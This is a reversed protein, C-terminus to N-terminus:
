QQEGWPDKGACVAQWYEYDIDSQHDKPANRLADLTKEAFEPHVYNPHLCYWPYRSLLELAGQWGPVISSSHQLELDATDENYLANENVDRQFRWEGDSDKWGYLSIGGGEAGIEIIKVPHDSTGHLHNDDNVKGSEMRKPMALDDLVRKLAQQMRYSSMKNGCDPCFSLLDEGDIVFLEGDGRQDSWDMQGILKVLSVRARGIKLEKGCCDCNEPLNGSTQQAAEENSDHAPLELKEVMQKRLEKSYSIRNGCRACSSILPDADIVTVSQLGTDEIFDHQEINRQIELVANGYHIDRGCIDCQTYVREFGNM